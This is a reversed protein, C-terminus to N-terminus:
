FVWTWMAYPYNMSKRGAQALYPGAFLRAYGCWIQLHRNMQYIVRVDTEGGVRSETANANQVFVAGSITYLADRRDVLWFHHYATRVRWKPRPRWDLVIVPEHTNRWGFDSATGYVSTAFMQDFTGKRGDRTDGDGTAYNYEGSLRPAKSHNWLPHGIEWHGAWTEVRDSASHGRQIAMEVNYDYKGSLKGLSRLGWTYVALRTARYDKWLFYADVTRAHGPSDWSAYSGHFRRDTRPRDFGVVPLVVFSAWSDVRFRNMRYSVRAGDFAPGVNGWNSTSVLRMDGFILPQRGARLRWGSESSGVEAYAQRLDFSNTITQPCPARDYDAVRSDQAQVFVRLWPRVLFSSNLRLRHLYYTETGESVGALGTFNDLRGRIEGGVKWWSPWGEFLSHTATGQPDPPPQPTGQQAAATAAAAFAALILWTGAGLAATREQAFRFIFVVEL